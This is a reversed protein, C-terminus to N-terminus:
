APKNFTRFPQEERTSQKTVFEVTYSVIEIIIIKQWRYYLLWPSFGIKFVSGGIHSTLLTLVSLLVIINNIKVYTPRIHMLFLIIINNNGQLKLM